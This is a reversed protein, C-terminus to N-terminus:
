ETKMRELTRRDLEELRLREEKGRQRDICGSCGKPKGTGRIVSLRLNDYNNCYDCDSPYLDDLTLHNYKM